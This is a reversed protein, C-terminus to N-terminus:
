GMTQCEPVVGLPTEVVDLAVSRVLETIRANNIVLPYLQWYDLDYKAGHSECIGKIIAEIRECIFNEYKPNFYRVTGSMKVTDAIVNLATGGEFTGVTVVASDTPKINRSVITQLSNVIQAGVMISDVTQDPMAGHGGKGFIQCKFCEVAAMLAGERVGVTGLPLNNV